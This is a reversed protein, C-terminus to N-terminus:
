EVGVIALLETLADIQYDVAPGDDAGYAVTTLGAQKGGEMDNRYKDGVMVGRVPDVGASQAKKLATEFMQQDPKVHGVEESTTIHSIHAAIEFRDLVDPIVDADADSVIAQYVGANGLRRITEVAGPTPETRERRVRDFRSWLDSPPAGDFLAEAARKRAGRATRYETGERGAFHESMAEQWTSLAAREGPELDYADVVEAIFARQAAAISGIDLIVGGVDWFVADYNM